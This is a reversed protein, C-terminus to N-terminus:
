MDFPLSGGAAMLAVLANACDLMSYPQTAIWRIFANWLDKMDDANSRGALGGVVILQGYSKTIIRAQEYGLVVTKRAQNGDMAVGFVTTATEIREGFEDDLRVLVVTNPEPVPVIRTEEDVPWRLRALAMIADHKM